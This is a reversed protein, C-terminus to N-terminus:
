KINVVTELDVDVYVDIRQNVFNTKLVSKVNSYKACSTVKINFNQKILEINKVLKM